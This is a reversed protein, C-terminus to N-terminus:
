SPCFQKVVPQARQFGAAWAYGSPIADLSRVYFPAAGLRTAIRWRIGNWGLLLAERDSM